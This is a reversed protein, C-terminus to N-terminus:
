DLTHVMRFFNDVLDLDLVEEEGCHVCNTRMKLEIGYSGLVNKYKKFIARKDNPTLARYADVIDERSSYIATDGGEIDEMFNEIILTETVIDLLQSNSGAFKMAEVEDKLTPQKITARVSKLIPLSVEFKEDLINKDEPYPNISFTSSAKITIPYSKSCKGCSVDYNRVEEYTIHYLGYLLADRDKLTCLALFDDFNKINEPRQVICEFICRNLHDTVVSPSLLSGKLREEEQVTMSRLRFSQNTHPTKVEYEPFKHKFGTFM